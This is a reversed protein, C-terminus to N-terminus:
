TSVRWPIESGAVKRSLTPVPIRMDRAAASLSGKEVATLFM